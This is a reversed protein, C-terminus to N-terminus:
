LKNITSLYQGIIASLEKNFASENGEHAKFNGDEEDRRLNKLNGFVRQFRNRETRFGLKVNPSLKEEEEKSLAIGGTEFESLNFKIGSAALKQINQLLALSHLRQLKVGARYDSMEHISNVDGESTRDDFIVALIKIGYKDLDVQLPLIEKRIAGPLLQDSESLLQTQISGIGVSVQYGTIIKDYDNRFKAILYESEKELTILTLGKTRNEIAINEVSLVERRALWSNSEQKGLEPDSGRAKGGVVALSGIAILIIALKLSTIPKPSIM